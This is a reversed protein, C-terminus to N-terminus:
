KNLNNLFQDLKKPDYWYSPDLDIDVPFGDDSNAFEMDEDLYGCVNPSSSQYISGSADAFVDVPCAGGGSKKGIIKASSNKAIAPLFNGCSFSFESTLIYFHYKDQYTFSDMVM